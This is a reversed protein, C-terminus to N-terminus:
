RRPEINNVYTFVRRTGDKDLRLALTERVEEKDNEFSTEYMVARVSPERGKSEQAGCHVIKAVQKSALSLVASNRGFSTACYDPRVLCLLKLLTM